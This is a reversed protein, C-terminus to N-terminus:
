RRRGPFLKPRQHEDGIDPVQDLLSRRIEDRRRFDEFMAVLDPAGHEDRVPAPVILMLAVALGIVLAVGGTLLGAGSSSLISNVIIDLFGVVVMVASCVVATARAADAERELLARRAISSTLAFLACLVADILALVVGPDTAGGMAAVALLLSAVAAGVHMAFSLELARVAYVIWDARRFSLPMTRVFSRSVMVAFAAFLWPLYVYGTAASQVAAYEMRLTNDAVAGIILGAVVGCALVYRSRERRLGTSLVLVLLLVSIGTSALAGLSYPWGTTVVRGVIMVLALLAFVAAAWSIVLLLARTRAKAVLGPTWGEHGRPEVGLISGVLLLSVGAGIGLPPSSLPSFLVPLSVVADALVAGVGVVIGPALLAVRLTRILALPPEKMLWRMLHVAVLGLMGLAIAIRPAIIWPGIDAAAFTTTYASALAILAVIDRVADWWSLAAFRPPLTVRAPPPTDETNPTTGSRAYTAGPSAPVPTVDAHAPVAPVSEEPSPALSSEYAGIAELSPLEDTAHYGPEVGRFIWDSADEDAEHRRERGDREAM